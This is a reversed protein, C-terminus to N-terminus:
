GAERPTVTVWVDSDVIKASVSKDSPEASLTVIYGDLEAKGIAEAILLVHRGQQENGNM